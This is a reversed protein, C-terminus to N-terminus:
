DDDDDESAEDSDDLVGAIGLYSLHTSLNRLGAREEAEIRREIEWQRPDVHSEVANEVLERLRDPPIADLEVAPKNGWRRAEPDKAKSPRTPLSWAAIQAPTVALREFHVPVGAFEPLDRSIARAARAGGADHDYLAYIWTQSGDQEYADKAAMAASHLFTVSSQGRSVMLPVRWPATVDVVVEALADKELWIEIRVGQTRWLDRRYASQVDLIFADKDAWQQVMRRLRTGDAIFDWSLLGERRMTALQQQVPRYGAAEDKPVVGRVTLAYFVQRVTMKDYEGVLEDLVVTRIERNKLSISGKPRGRRRPTGVGEIEASAVDFRQGSPRWLLRGAEEACRAFDRVDEALWVPGMKLRQFPEPLGDLGWLKSRPIGLIEAAESAGVLPEPDLDLDLEVSRGRVQEPTM